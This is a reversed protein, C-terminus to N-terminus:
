RRQGERRLGRVFVLLGGVALLAMTLLSISKTVPLGRPEYLLQLEVEGAPISFALLGEETRSMAVTSPSAVRWGPYPTDTRVLTGAPGTPIRLRIRNLSEKEIRVPREIEEAWVYRFNKGSLEQVETESSDREQSRAIVNAKKGHPAAGNEMLPFSTYGHLTHVKYLLPTVGPFVYEFRGPAQEELRGHAGVLEILRKQEPGGKLLEHWAEAGHWPVFRRAYLLMPAINLALILSWVLWSRSRFHSSGLLFLSLLSALGLVVEPNRVTIERSFNALQARRLDPALDLTANSAERELVFQELRPLLRPYVLFAFLHMAVAVMGILIVARKRFIRFSAFEEGQRLLDIAYGALVILGLVGLGSSRPYLLHILPTSSILGFYVGLLAIATRVEPRGPRTKIARWGGWVALLAAATGIYVAFGLGTDGIVKGVDLTRFTGLAWPFVGALGLLGSLMRALNGGPLVERSCLLYLEAQAAMIPLALGVGILGSLCTVFLVRRWTQGSTWGYGLCFAVAFLPLYAHSQQNGAMLVAACFGGALALKWIAPSRLWSAWLVWLLPYYLFSGQVSAPFIFYANSTCFQCALAGFLSAMPSFRLGALLVFATMGSLLSHMIHTWNFATEFSALKYLLLRVPDTISNHAEAALPSGGRSYPDWWPFEGQRIGEWALYQRPLEYDFIDVIYHNAPVESEATNMWAYKSYLTPPLDLPALIGHNWFAGRFIIIAGVLSITLHILFATKYSAAKM